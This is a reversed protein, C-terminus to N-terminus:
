YIFAIAATAATKAIAVVDAVSGVSATPKDCCSRRIRQLAGAFAASVNASSKTSVVLPSHEGHINRRVGRNRGGVASVVFELPVSQHEALLLLPEQQQPVRVLTRVGVSAAGDRAKASADLLKPAVNRSALVLAAGHRMAEAAAHNQGM